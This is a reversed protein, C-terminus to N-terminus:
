YVLFTIAFAISGFTLGFFLFGFNVLIFKLTTKLYGQKYFRKMALYAYILFILGTWGDLDFGPFSFKILWKTILLLFFVTQVHFLFILHEIYFYNRRFYVAWFSLASLPLFLFAVIPLKSMFFNLFDKIDLSRGKKVETYMFRNLRTDELELFPLARSMPISDQDEVFRNIRSLSQKEQLYYAQPKAYPGPNPLTDWWNIQNEFEKLSDALASSSVPILNSDLTSEQREGEVLSDNISNKIEKQFDAVTRIPEEDSGDELSLDFVIDDDRDSENWEVLALDARGILNGISILTFYIISVTLYMRIPHVYQQRKGEIFERTLKGPKLLLPSLSHVVKSDVSFYSRVSESIFEYFSLRRRDNRQGCYHCFNEKAVLPTGCNLCEEGKLAPRNDPLISLDLKNKKKSM